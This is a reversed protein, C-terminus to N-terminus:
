YPSLGNRPSRVTMKSGQAKLIVVTRQIGGDTGHDDMGGRGDEQLHVLADADKGSGHMAVPHGDEGVLQLVGHFRSLTMPTSSSPPTLSSIM